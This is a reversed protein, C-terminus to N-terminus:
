ITILDFHMNESCSRAWVDRLELIIILVCIVIIQKFNREIAGRAGTKIIIVKLLKLNKFYNVTVYILLM